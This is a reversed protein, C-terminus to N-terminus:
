TDEKGLVHAYVWADERGAEDANKKEYKLLLDCFYMTTKGDICQRYLM